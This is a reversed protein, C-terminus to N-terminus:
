TNRLDYLDIQPVKIRAEELAELSALLKRAKCFEVVRDALALFIKEQAELEPMAPQGFHHRVADVHAADFLASQDADCYFVALPLGVDSEILVALYIKKGRSTDQAEARTMGWQEILDQENFSDNPVCESHGSRWAKGIIGTRMSFIRGAGGRSVGIYDVLQRFSHALLVDPVHLTFRFRAFDGPSLAAGYRRGAPSSGTLYAKLDSVVLQFQPGVHSNSVWDKHTEPVQRILKQVDELTAAAGESLKIELGAVNLQTIRRSMRSLLFQMQPAQLLWGALVLSALPWALAAALPVLATVLATFQALAGEAKEKKEAPPAAAVPVLLFRTEGVAVVPLAVPAASGAPASATGSATPAAAAAKGAAPVQAASPGAAVLWFILGLVLHVLKM